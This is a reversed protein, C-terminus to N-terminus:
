SSLDGAMGTIPGITPCVCVCVIVESDSMTNCHRVKGRKWQCPGIPGRPGGPGAPALTLVGSGGTDFDFHKTALAQLICVDCCEGGNRERARM